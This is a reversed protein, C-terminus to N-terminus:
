TIKDLDQQIESLSTFEGLQIYKIIGLGNIFFTAPIGSVGYQVAVDYGTDLLVPVTYGNSNMFDTVAQVSDHSNIALIVAGNAKASEQQYMSQM